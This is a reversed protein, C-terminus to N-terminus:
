LAEKLKTIYQEINNVASVKLAYAKTCEKRHGRPGGNWIRAKDSDSLGKGYHNIYIEFMERSKTVSTRDALSYRRSGIIRNVDDVMIPHIQVIGVAKGNDGVANPNNNSEVKCISEFLGYNLVLLLIM